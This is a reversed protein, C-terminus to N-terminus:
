KAVFTDLTTRLWGLVRVTTDLKPNRRSISWLTVYPVGTLKELDRLSIGEAEMQHQIRRWFRQRNFRPFGNRGNRGPRGNGQIKAVTKM